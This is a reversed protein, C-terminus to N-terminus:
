HILQLHCLLVHILKQWFNKFSLRAHSIFRFDQPLKEDYLYQLNNM